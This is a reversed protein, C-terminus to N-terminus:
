VLLSLIDPSLLRLPAELPGRGCLQGKLRRQDVHYFCFWGAVKGEGCLVQCSTLGVPRLGAAGAGVGGWGGAGHGRWWGLRAWNCRWGLGDAPSGRGKRHSKSCSSSTPHALHFTNPENNLCLCPLPKQFTLVQDVFRHQADVVISSYFLIQLVFKLAYLFVPNKM